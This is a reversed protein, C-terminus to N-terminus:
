RFRGRAKTMPCTRTAAGRGLGAAADPEIIHTAGRPTTKALPMRLVLSTSPTVESAESLSTGGTQNIRFTDFDVGTQFRTHIGYPLIWTRYWNM